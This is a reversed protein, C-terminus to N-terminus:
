LHHTTLESASQPDIWFAQECRQYRNDAYHDIESPTDQENSRSSTSSHCNIKGTGVKKQAHPQM